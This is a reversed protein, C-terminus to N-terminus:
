DGPAEPQSSPVQVGAGAAGGDTAPHYQLLCCVALPSCGRFGKQPGTYVAQLKTFYASYIGDGALIDAGVGNDLLPFSIPGDKTPPIVVATINADLVTCYKISMELMLLNTGPFLRLVCIYM